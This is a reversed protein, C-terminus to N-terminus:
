ELKATVFWLVRTAQSTLPKFLWSHGKNKRIPLEVQEPYVVWLSIYTVKLKKNGEKPTKVMANSLKPFISKKNMM